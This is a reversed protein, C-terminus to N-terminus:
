YSKEYKNLINKHLKYMILTLKMSKVKLFFILKSSTSLSLTLIRKTLIKEKEDIEKM